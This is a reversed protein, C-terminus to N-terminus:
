GMTIIVRAGGKLDIAREECCSRYEWEFKRGAVSQLSM